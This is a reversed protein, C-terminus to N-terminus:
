KNQKLMDSYITQINKTLIALMHGRKIEKQHNMEKLYIVLKSTNGFPYMIPCTLVCIHSITALGCQNEGGLQM